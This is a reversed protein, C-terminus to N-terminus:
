ISTPRLSQTILPILRSENCPKALCAFFGEREAKLCVEPNANATILIVPLQPNSKALQEKVEFGSVGPMMLDVLVCAVPNSAHTKLFAKGSSFTLPLFGHMRLLSLPRLCAAQLSLSAIRICDTDPPEFGEGRRWIRKAKKTEEAALGQVNM